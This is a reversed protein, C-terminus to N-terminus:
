GKPDLVLKGFHEGAAIRAHAAGAEALPRVSDIPPRIGAEAVLKLLAEFDAPSGMKTGLIQKQQLYVARVDLETLSRGTGGCAVLRGGSGLLEISQPWSSGVSDLVVEAPGLGASVQAVWDAERYNVACEAGQARAWELKEPSSSTIAVRAGVATALQLAAISVAGTGLIVLREGARLGGVAFLARHATVSALPLAAAEEWSLGAPKPYLNAAPIAILEAYTGDSPGGLIEFEPGAVAEDPGWRLSPLIMVEEGSDRRVGAGDSGLVFPLSLQYAPTAGERLLADRPNVAIARLEVLVEGPGPIPDAIASPRLTEPPGHRELVIAQM